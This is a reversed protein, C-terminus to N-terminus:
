AGVDTSDEYTYAFITEKMSNKVLADYYLRYDFKYADMDQHTDPDFVRIKETKKVQGAANKPMVIAGVNAADDTPAFGGASTTAGADYEYETKMRADPVPLISCNNLKNVKISIEGKKFEDIRLRRSLEPTSMLAAYFTPNLFAVLEGDYGNVSCVDNILKTLLKLCSSDLTESAGLTETQSATAAIGALNSLTYADVEPVVKTRIFEGMIQGALGSIGVEDMDERDIIFTRGRDQTLVYPKQTITVAGKPFGTDRGYDGLGVFDIDPILVTKTGIFKARFVNDLLFSTVSKQVLAKDLANTLESRFALSNIAAM